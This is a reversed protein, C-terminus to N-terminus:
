HSSTLSESIPWPHCKTKPPEKESGFVAVWIPDDSSLMGGLGIEQYSPELLIQRHGPSLLWAEVILRPALSGRAINEGFARPLYGVEEIRKLPDSGDYGFHGSAGGEALAQAHAGAAKALLVDAWLPPAGERARAGNIEDLLDQAPNAACQSLRLPTTCSFSAATLSLAFWSIRGLGRTQM